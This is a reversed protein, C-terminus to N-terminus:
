WQMEAIVARTEKPTLTWFGQQGRVAVPNRLIRVNSAEWAYRGPSYDGMAFEEVWAEAAGDEFRKAHEVVAKADWIKVFDVVCVIAGAPLGLAEPGDGVRTFLTPAIPVMNRFPSTGCLHMLERNWKKAAHIAVNRIPLPERPAWHRTEFSKVPCQVRAM